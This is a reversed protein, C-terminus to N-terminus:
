HNWSTKGNKKKFSVVRFGGAFQSSLAPDSEIYAAVAATIAAVLADDSAAPAAPAAPVPEESKKENKTNKFTKSTKSPDKYFIKKFLLLVIWLISLVLFIMGMGQLIMIGAMSLRAGSFAGGLDDGADAEQIDAMYKDSLAIFGLETISMDLTEATYTDLVKLASNFLATAAVRFNEEDVFNIGEISTFELPDNGTYHTLLVTAALKIPEEPKAANVILFSVEAKEPSGTMTLTMSVQNVPSIQEAILCVAEPKSEGKKIPATLKVGTFDLATGDLTVEGSTDATETVHDRLRTYGTMAEMSLECSTATVLLIVLMLAALTLSIIRKM